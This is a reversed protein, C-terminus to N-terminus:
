RYRCRHSHAEQRLLRREPHFVHNRPTNDTTPRTTQCPIRCCPRQRRSLTKCHKAPAARSNKAQDLTQARRFNLTATSQNSLSITSCICTLSVTPKTHPPLYSLSPGLDLGPSTVRLEPSAGVQVGFLLLKGSSALGVNM